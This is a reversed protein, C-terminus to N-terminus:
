MNKESWLTNPARSPGSPVLRQLVSTQSSSVPTSRFFCLGSPPATIVQVLRRETQKRGSWFSAVLKLVGTRQVYHEQPETAEM